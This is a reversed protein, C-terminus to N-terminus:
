SDSRPLELTTIYYHQLHEFSETARIRFKYVLPGKVSM